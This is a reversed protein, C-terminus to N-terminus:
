IGEPFLPGVQVGKGQFNRGKVGEGESNGVVKQPPPPPQINEPLVCETEGNRQM